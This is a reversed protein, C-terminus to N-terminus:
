ALYQAMAQVLAHIQAADRKESACLLLANGLEPYDQSLDVGALFGQQMLANRLKAVPKPLRVALEHFLAGTFCAEIAPLATLQARLVHANQHCVM